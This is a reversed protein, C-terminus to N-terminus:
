ELHAREEWDGLEQKLAPLNSLKEDEKLVLIAAERAKKILDTDYFNAMKLEPFGKQVLGYVEGPGRFALDAKALDFGNDFKTMAELRHNTAETPNNSMLFCFGQDNRRGVRGRYQHLQALGFRDAEEVMMVTASPIDIGIEIISTAVLINIKNDTLDALIKEREASKLRGHLLAIKYDKFVGNSLREYEAKVSKIGLKDSEDILPCIVFAQHGQNLEKIIFDYAAQRKDEAVVKTLVKKRGLPMERIQSVDLDGYIALALSRPIPTATMSLLHPATGTKVKQTLLQRQEVGFRHQEDVVALALNDFEINKQILAQTGIIIDIEGSALLKLIEKKNSVMAESGERTILFQYGSTLLALSIKEKAFLATLTKFHQLALIETPAMFASQKKALAVNLMALCAVVTKGSGVDGQLLRLMPKNTAMAQIIEWASSKQSATLDFPLNTVFKKTAQENFKIPEAMLKESAKKQQQARLQMLFLENFGLRQKAQDLSLKDKPFHIERVAKKLPALKYDYVIKTPLWDNITEAFNIVRSINSRLVKQTLTSTLHYIPVIGETHIAQLTVKEYQPSSMLLGLYDETIRGALSIQDGSRLNHTLFPQNFWLVRLTDTGDNVLCETIYMRRKPSRKNQILEIQGNLHVVEGVKLESIKSTKSFDDYRFPFYYLLDQITKIDLQKFNRTTISGVGKLDSIPTSLLM